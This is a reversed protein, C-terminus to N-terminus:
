LRLTGTYGMMVIMAGAQHSVASFFYSYIHSAARVILIINRYSQSYEQIM